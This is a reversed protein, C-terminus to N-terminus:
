SCIDLGIYYILFNILMILLDVNVYYNLKNHYSVNIGYVELTKLRGEVYKTDCQKWLILATSLVAWLINESYYSAM